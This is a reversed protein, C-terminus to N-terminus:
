TEPVQISNNSTNINYNSVGHHMTMTYNYSGPKPLQYNDINQTELLANNLLGSKTRVEKDGPLYDRFRFMPTLLPIIGQALSLDNFTRLLILSM